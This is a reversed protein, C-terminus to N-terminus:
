RLSLPNHILFDGHLGNYTVWTYDNIIQRLANATARGMEKTIIPDQRGNMHLVPTDSNVQNWNMAEKTLEDLYPLYTIIGIIGGLKYRATLATYLSLFGGESLGVLVIDETDIDFQYQMEDIQEYVFQSAKELGEVGSRETIWENGDIFPLIKVTDPPTPCEIRVTSSVFPKLGVCLADTVM